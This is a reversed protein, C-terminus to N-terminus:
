GEKAISIPVVSPAAQVLSDHRPHRRAERIKSPCAEVSGLQALMM